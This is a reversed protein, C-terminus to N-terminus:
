QHSATACVRKKQNKNSLKIEFSTLANTKNNQPIMLVIDISPPPLHLELLSLHHGCLSLLLAAVGKIEVSERNSKQSEDIQKTPRMALVAEHHVESLIGKIFEDLLIRIHENLEIGWPVDNEGM